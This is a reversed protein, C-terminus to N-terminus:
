SHESASTPRRKQAQVPESRRSSRTAMRKNSRGAAGRSYAGNRKTTNVPKSYWSDRSIRRPVFLQQILRFVFKDELPSIGHQRFDQGGDHHGAGQPHGAIGRMLSKVAAREAPNAAIRRAFAARGYSRHLHAIAARDAVIAATRRAIAAGARRAGLFRRRFAAAALRILRTDM